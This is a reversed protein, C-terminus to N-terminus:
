EPKSNGTKRLTIQKELEKIVDEYLRCFNETEAQYNALNTHFRKGSMHYKSFFRSYYFVEMEQENAGKKKLEQLAAELVHIDALMKVMQSRPIISDSPLDRQVSSHENEGCSVFLLLLFILFFYNKM